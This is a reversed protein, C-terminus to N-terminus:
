RWTLELHEPAIRSCSKGTDITNGPSVAEGPLCGPVHRLTGLQGRLPPLAPVWDM